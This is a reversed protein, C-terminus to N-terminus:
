PDSILATNAHLLDLFCEAQLTLPRDRRVISGYATLTNRIRYPLIKLLGHRDFRGAVSHPIVAVMDTKAVLDTTTLISSSEILGSPLATHRDRFELEMVDRM